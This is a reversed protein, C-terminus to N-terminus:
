GSICWYQISADHMLEPLVQWVGSVCNYGHFGACQMLEPLVQWLGSFCVHVDMDQQRM